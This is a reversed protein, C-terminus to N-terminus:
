KNALIVDAFAKEMVRYGVNTPHPETASVGNRDAWLLNNRGLFAAHVDVVYVNPFLAAVTATAQNLGDVFDDTFPFFAQVAPLTYSNAIFIKAGPAATRLTSLIGALNAAYATIADNGAKLVDPIPTGSQLLALVALLDNGGVSLTIFDPQFRAAQPAQYQLVDASTSGPVAANCFVTHTINDFVGDKYLLYVYGDTVPVAKDGAALSDGLAMYRTAQPDLIQPSQAFGTAPLLLIAALGVALVSRRGILNRM